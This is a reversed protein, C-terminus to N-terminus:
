EYNDSPTSRRALVGFCIGCKCPSPAGSASAAQRATNNARVPKQHEKTGFGEPSCEVEPNGTTPLHSSMLLGGYREFVRRSLCLLVVSDRSPRVEAMFALCSKSLLRVQPLLDGGQGSHQRGRQIELRPVLRRPRLLLLALLAQLIFVRHRLWARFKHLVAAYRLAATATGPSAAFALGEYVLSVKHACYACSNHM